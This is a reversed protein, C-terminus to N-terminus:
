HHSLYWMEPITVFRYGHKKLLPIMTNLAEVTGSLNQTWHGACHMLIIAGPHVKNMVRATIVKAGPSRWDETDISWGIGKYGMTGLMLVQRENLAGYPARFWQTTKGTAQFIQKNTNRIEWKLVHIGSKTLQPHWYTHNGIAHGENVIRRAVNPHKVVRSGMLFFTAKVHHKRLVDLIQPTYRQDPGDDFTLAAVKQRTQGQYLMIKPYKAQLPYYSLNANATLPFHIILLIILSLVFILRCSM